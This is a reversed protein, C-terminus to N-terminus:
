CYLFASKMTKNLIGRKTTYFLIYGVFTVLDSTDIRKMKFLITNPPGMCYCCRENIEFYTVKYDEGALSHVAYKQLDQFTIIGDGQSTNSIRIRGRNNCALPYWIHKPSMWLDFGDPTAFQELAYTNHIGRWMLSFVNTWQLNIEDRIEPSDDNRYTGISCILKRDNFTIHTLASGYVSANNNISQMEMLLTNAIVGILRYESTLLKNARDQSVFKSQLEFNLMLTGTKDSINHLIQFASMERDQVYEVDARKFQRVIKQAFDETITFKIYREEM